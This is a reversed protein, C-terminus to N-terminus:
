LRESCRPVREPFDTYLRGFASDLVARRHDRDDGSTLMCTTEKVVFLRGLWSVPQFAVTGVRALVADLTSIRM